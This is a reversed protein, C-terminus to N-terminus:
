QFKEYLVKGEEAIKYEMTVPNGSRENFEESGYVLLDVPTKMVDFISLNLKKLAERKRKGIGDVVVCLDFDSDENPMGYAHSGFLIIKNVDSLSSTMKDVLQNLEKPVNTNM